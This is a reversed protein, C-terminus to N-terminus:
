DWAAGIGRPHAEESISGLHYTLWKCSSNLLDRGGILFVSVARSALQYAESYVFRYNELKSWKTIGLFVVEDAYCYSCQM